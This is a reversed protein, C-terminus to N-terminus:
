KADLMKRLYEKLTSYAEEPIAAASLYTKTAHVAKINIPWESLLILIADAIHILAPNTANHKVQVWRGILEKRQMARHPFAACRRERALVWEEDTLRILDLEIAHFLRAIYDRLIKDAAAKYRPRVAGLSLLTSSMPLVDLITQLDIETDLDGEVFDAIQKGEEDAGDCWFGGGKVRNVSTTIKM